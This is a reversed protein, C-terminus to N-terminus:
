PLLLKCSRDALAIYEIYPLRSLRAEGELRGPRAKLGKEEEEAEM